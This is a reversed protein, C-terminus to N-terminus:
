TSSLRISHDKDSFILTSQIVVMMLPYNMEAMMVGMVDNNDITM